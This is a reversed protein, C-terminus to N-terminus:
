LQTSPRTSKVTVLVGVVGIKNYKIYIYIYIYIYFVM